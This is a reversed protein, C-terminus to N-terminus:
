ENKISNLFKNGKTVTLCPQVDSRYYLIYMLGRKSPAKQKYGVTEM